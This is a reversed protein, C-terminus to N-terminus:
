DYLPIKVTITTGSDNNTKLEFTGGLISARERMNYIGNGKSRFDHGFDFGKGNDEIILEIHNRLELLQISVESAVSHKVVNNLAEQSIRYLYTNIREDFKKKLPLSEFTIDINSAQAMMKCLNRLATELGLEKLISPMLNDSIKRIEDITTDFMQQVDLLLDNNSKETNIINELKLKIAILYQGLGDHLERSIRQREIEQGDILSSLRRTKEEDLEKTQKKIKLTMKNFTDTLFGIEDLSSVQLSINYDGEGVQESAKQLKKLPTIIKRSMVFAFVFVSSAIATIGIIILMLIRNNTEDKAYDETKKCYDNAMVVVNDIHKRHDLYKEKLIGNVLEKTKQKDGSKVAPIFDNDIIKYFEKAPKYSLNIMENKMDGEPMNKIWYEHREFYEKRLKKILYEAEQNLIKSDKEDAMECVTLYSEILYSPPPLIDAVLDKELVIKNYVPGNVKLNNLTTLSYYSFWIMGIAIILIVTFIKESIKLKNLLIM